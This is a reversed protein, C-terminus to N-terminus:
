GFKICCAVQEIARSYAVVSDEKGHFALQSFDRFLM